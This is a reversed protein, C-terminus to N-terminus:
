ELVPSRNLVGGIRQYWNCILRLTGEVDKGKMLYACAGLAVAEDRKSSDYGATCMIVPIGATRPDGRLRVLVDTGTMGPMMEDLVVLLPQEPPFQRIYAIAEHGSTVWDCSFGQQELLACLARAADVYDEVVLIM